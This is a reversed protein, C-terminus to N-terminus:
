KTGYQECNEKLCQILYDIEEKTTENLLSVRICSESRRKDVNMALLVKSGKNTKSSCTSQASVCIGQKNLANMMVESYVNTSFNVIHCVGNHPSHISVHQVTLLQKLLYERLQTLSCKKQQELALRLTKAFCINVLANSTGGRLGFEQQGGNILPILSVHRKKILIGSGKLGYIKHASFSLLDIDKCDIVLKGLAQVGDVHLFAQSQKKVVEKISDIDMISGVENNVWMISVLVTDKRLAKKLDEISIVGFENVTLRTVEYGFVSELQNIAGSVSSHEVCTTIIHKKLPNNFAVGKIAMNNAESAGSTFIIEESLVGFLTAIAQRSKEMMQNLQIAEDYLADNNVYMTQLLDLYTKKIEGHLPTTSAGDLYIRPQVRQM